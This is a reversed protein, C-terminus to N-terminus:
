NSSKWPFIKLNQRNYNCSYFKFSFLLSIDSKIQLTILIQLSLVVFYTVKQWSNWKSLTGTTDGKLSRAFVIYVYRNLLLFTRLLSYVWGSILMNIQTKNWGQIWSKCFLVLCFIILIECLPWSELSLFLLTLFIRMTTCVIVSCIVTVSTGCVFRFHKFHTQTSCPDWSWDKLICVLM